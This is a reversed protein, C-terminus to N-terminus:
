GEGAAQRLFELIARAEQQTVNQFTMKTMYEEVLQKVVPHREQMGEPNLIINMIYEPSRVLAVERLPPGVYRMDLKHCSTCKQEFLAKGQDALAPDVPGLQMREKIPGIELEVPRAGLASGGKEVSPEAQSGGRGCGIWVGLGLILGAALLLRM